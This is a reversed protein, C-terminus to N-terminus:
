KSTFFQRVENVMRHQKVRTQGIFQPSVVEVDFMSGCGGSVDKVAVHVAELQATLASHMAREADTGSASAMARTMARTATMRRGLAALM